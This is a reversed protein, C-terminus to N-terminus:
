ALAKQLFSRTFGPPHDPLEGFVTYGLSEYFGRAGFQTDVWAHHCGRQRAEAEAAAMLARGLGQGRAAAPVVLMHTYLWGFSTAGWLGGGIAGAANRLVLALPQHGSPGALTENHALLPAAIARRLPDDPADALSLQWTDTM